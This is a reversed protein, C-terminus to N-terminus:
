RGKKLFRNFIMDKYYLFNDTKRFIIFIILNPIIVSILCNTIFKLIKNSIVIKISIYYTFLAIIVFLLIYGITEKAYNLYNGKLVKKYVFKPYGYCWLILGSILTGLFVGALGLYKVFILSFVINLISEIIPVIRDEYFIGAADKFTGYTTRMSKQFYNFVLILLVGTSLIYDKGLWIKIFSDMIVLISTASFAACWFNLFRIKKFVNFSVETSETVLMNGVSATTSTIIQSFIGQVGNIIMYYNSYLGVTIVGLYKSIIVNDTGNVFFSGLKHCFMAKMKQYIDKKDEKSIKPADIEIIEKYQKNVITTLTLNELFTCIIKIILYVYYNKTLALITLQAINLIVIYILHVINIIYNKQYAYILSRKYALVYSMVTNLVFLIYVIKLNIDVEVTGVINEIFFLLIFGIVLVILSIVRYCNKYFDLLSKIQVKNNESIPKYLKYIISTGLGLDAICLFTIINSFLSNIGLFENGMIKIFVTQAIFGILIAAISSAVSTITNYTSYYVRSKKM